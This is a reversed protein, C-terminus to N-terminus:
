RGADAAPAAPRGTADVVAPVAWNGLGVALGMVWFLAAPGVAAGAAGFAMPMVSGATNITMSRLAIAEGARDEPTMRHLMSMIMPQVTGLPLGLLVACAAMAWASGVLPYVAFVLATALMAWRLVVVESLRHALMPVAVRVATVAATFGGLVLGIVSASFGRDHGLVPVAFSHMDWSASLLANVVLLRRLGPTALLSWATPPPMPPLSVAADDGSEAVAAMPGADAPVWRAAAMSALPLALLFAYAAGFGGADIMLGAGVPGVINAIAPALSLWSFVRLRDTADSSLRGARRQIAILGVNAGAGCLAAGLCQAGFRWGGVLLLALLACGVGAMVLAVALRVPAHYGRRDAYRGAQLASLVPLLAFLAMLVGVPAVGRGDRLAQLPAALRLGAMASHLGIQGIILAPLVSRGPSTQGM